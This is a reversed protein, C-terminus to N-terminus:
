LDSRGRICHAATVVHQRTILAAGCLFEIEDKAIEYGLAALWPYMDSSSASTVVM